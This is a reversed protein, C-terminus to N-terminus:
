LWVCVNRIIMPVEMKKPRRGVELDQVLTVILVARDAGRVQLLDHDHVIALAVGPGQLVGRDAAVIALVVEPVVELGKGQWITASSAAGAEDIDIVIEQMIDETVASMAGIMLTFHADVHDLHHAESDAVVMKVM